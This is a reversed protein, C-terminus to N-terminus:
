AELRSSLCLQYLEPWSATGTTRIKKVVISSARCALVAAENLAAGAATACALAALFTDGAGCIDTEGTVQVAPVHATCEGDATVCGREGCTVIAPRGTHRSLRSALQRLEEIGMPADMGFARGAELENPKVMVGSYDGIHDRSDVIVTMGARGLQCVKARVAPTICGFPLQDCVCLVECQLADLTALLRSEMDSALPEYNTFDLRPDEYVVASIGERLPKIYTNTCRRPDVLLGSVDAGLKRLLGQYERGRWDEGLVGICQVAAPQLALLNAVVNGAGGASIREQVIPLPFHPTELSLESKRMDAHWYIDLCFDGIVAVRCRKVRNQIDKYNM